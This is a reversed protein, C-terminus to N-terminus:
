MAQKIEWESKYQEQELLGLHEWYYTKGKWKITFDPSFQEADVLLEAEYEFPIKREFLINAIIVESKSRVMHGSLTQYIRGLKFKDVGLYLGIEQHLHQSDSYEGLLKVFQDLMAFKHEKKVGVDQMINDLVDEPLTESYSEIVLCKAPSRQSVIKREALWQYVSRVIESEPRGTKRATTMLLCNKTASLLSTFEPVTANKALEFVSLNQVGKCLVKVVGQAVLYHFASQQDEDDFYDFTVKGVKDNSLASFAKCIVEANPFSKAIFDKRRVQV